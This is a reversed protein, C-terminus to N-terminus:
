YGALSMPKPRPYGSAVWLASAASITRTNPPITTIAFEAKSSTKCVSCSYYSAPLWNSTSFLLGDEAVAGSWRLSCKLYPGISVIRETTSVSVSAIISRPQVLDHPHEHFERERGLYGGGGVWSDSRGVIHSSTFIIHAARRLELETNIRVEGEPVIDTSANM